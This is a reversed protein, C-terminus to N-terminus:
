PGTSFAVFVVFFAASSVPCVILCPALAVPLTIERPALAVSLVTPLVKSFVPLLIRSAPAVGVCTRRRAVWAAAVGFFDGVASRLGDGSADGAGLGSVLGALRGDGVGLVSAFGDGVGTLEGLGAM